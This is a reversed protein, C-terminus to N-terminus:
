RTQPYRHLFVEAKKRTANRTNGLQDTVFKLVVEKHSIQDFFKAFEVIAKGRLINRCEQTPLPVSEVTLLKDVIQEQLEPKAGAIGAPMVLSCLLFLLVLPTVLCRLKKM